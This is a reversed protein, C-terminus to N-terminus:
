LSHTGESRAQALWVTLAEPAMPRAFYYGQGQDCGIRSVAAVNEATELGEAVVRYGLEQCLMTTTSVLAVKRPETELGQMFSRDLKVTQVPLQQLYSLSSYGTGFDDIALPVGADSLRALTRGIVPDNLTFTQETVELEVATVPLNRAGLKGLLRDAFTEHRLNNPSVNISVALEPHRTRWRAVQDLAHALVWDTLEHIMPTPEILPVFEGPSVTGLGPHAWRLLAEAVTCAGSRLDIRPQFHLLLQRPAKLAQTFSQVLEFRRRHADDATQCFIRLPERHLRADQVASNAMRLVDRADTKGLIFPALGVAVAGGFDQRLSQAAEGLRQFSLKIYDDLSMGMPSLLAFQTPSVHYVTRNAEVSRRVLRGLNTVMQDLYAPGMVRMIANVQEAPAIDILSAILPMGPHTDAREAVDEAFQARNALGSVPDIRGLSLNQDLQAMAITGLDALIALDRPTVQRPVTDLVCITGIGIGDRTVLPVGAYFRMGAESLHSDRYVPHALLDPVVLPTRSLAAELCPARHRPISDIALGVVSTLWQRECDTLSIAAYPVQFVAAAIQTLRDLTGHRHLASDKIQRLIYSRAAESAQTM